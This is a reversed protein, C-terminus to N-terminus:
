AEFSPSYTYGYITEGEFDFMGFYFVELFENLESDPDLSIDYIYEVSGFLDDM